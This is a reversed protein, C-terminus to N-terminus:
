VKGQKLQERRLVPLKDVKLAEPEHALEQSQM